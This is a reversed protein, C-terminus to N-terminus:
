HVKVRDPIVRIPNKIKDQFVQNKPWTLSIQSQRPTKHKFDCVGLVFNCIFKLNWYEIVLGEPRFM